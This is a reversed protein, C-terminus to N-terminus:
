QLIDITSVEVTQKHKTIEVQKIIAVNPSYQNSQGNYAGTSDRSYAYVQYSGNRLYKFEYTGDYSTRIRDGFSVEDGYIIYVDVDPAYASDALVTFSKNYYKAYVKGQISSTGGDGEEKKCASIFLLCILFLQLQILKM